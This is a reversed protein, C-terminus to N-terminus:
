ARGGVELPVQAAASPRPTAPLRRLVPLAALALAIVAGSVALVTPWTLRVGSGVSDVAHAVVLLGLGNSLAIAGHLSQAGTRVVLDLFYANLFGTAVLLLVVVPRDLAEYLAYTAASGAVGLAPFGPAGLRYLVVVLAVAAVLVAWPWGQEGSAAVALTGLGATILVTFAADSFAPLPGTYYWRDETNQAAEFVSGALLLLAAALLLGPHDVVGVLDDRRHWVM